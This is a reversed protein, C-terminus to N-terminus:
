SDRIVHYTGPLYTLFNQALRSIDVTINTKTFCAQFNRLYDLTTEYSTTRTIHTQFSRQRPILTEQFTKCGCSTLKPATEHSTNHERSTLKSTESGALVQKPFHRVYAHLSSPLKSAASLRRTHRRINRPSLNPPKSCALCWRM